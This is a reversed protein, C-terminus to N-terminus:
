FNKKGYNKLKLLNDKIFEKVFQKGKNKFLDSIDKSKLNRPIYFYNLEPHDKKIKRMARIGPKDSDYFVVIYNFRKKLDNLIKDSVFLNESCPAIAPIGFSYLTLCDKLSKTIVVLKGKNRLQKYGQILDYKCNGIFKYGSKQNKPFYIRWQEINERKGFYYGYIPAHQASQALITGNLFVSKCSYVNFRKLIDKTIGFSNWWKLESESFEKVEVQIFTQKTGEFRPQAKVIPIQKNNGSKYGFDKAIIELAEHYNCNFKKMVVNVFDLCDGTAFDKFYLTGSKGRFYSCTTHYDVRLPSKFLKKSVPVGLYYTMYTEENNKSLLFEKTIKPEITFDFM